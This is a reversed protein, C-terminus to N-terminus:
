SLSSLTSDPTPEPEGAAPERTAAPGRTGASPSSGRAVTAQQLFPRLRDLVAGPDDFVVAVGAQLADGNQGAPVRQV